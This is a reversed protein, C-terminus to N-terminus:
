GSGSEIPAGCQPCHTWDEQLGAGCHSCVRKVEQSPLQEQKETAQNAKFPNGQWSNKSFWVVGAIVGVILIVGFLILLLFGFMMMM